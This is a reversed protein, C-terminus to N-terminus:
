TLAFCVFPFIFAIFGYEFAKPLFYLVGSLPLCYGFFYLWCQEFQEICASLKKADRLEWHYLFAQFVILLSINGVFLGRGIVAFKSYAIALLVYITILILYYTHQIL